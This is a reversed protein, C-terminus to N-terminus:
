ELLIWDLIHTGVMQCRTSGDPVAVEECVTCSLHLACGAPCEPFHLELDADLDAGPTCYYHNYGGGASASQAWCEQLCNVGIIFEYISVVAKYQQYGIYLHPFRPVSFNFFKDLIM